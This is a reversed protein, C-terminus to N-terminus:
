KGDSESSSDHRHHHRKKHHHKHHSRSSEGSAAPAAAPAPVPSPPPSTVLTIWGNEAFYQLLSIVKTLELGTLKRVKSRHIGGCLDSERIVVEKTSLYQSPSLHLLACLNRESDSLLCSGPMSSITFIKSKLDGKLKKSPRGPLGSSQRSIVMPRDDYEGVKRDLERRQKDMSYVEAAAYSRIGAARLAQLNDIRRRLDHEIATAHLLEEYEKRPAVQMLARMQTLLDRTKPALPEKSSGRDVFFKRDALHLRRYELLGNSIIFERRRARERTIWHYALMARHKVERDAESDEASFGIDKLVIEVENEWEIEFETRLPNYSASQEEQSFVPKPINAVSFPAQQTAEAPQPPAAPPAPRDSSDMPIVKRPDPLPCTESDLYVANYHRRIEDADKGPSALQEAIEEWNGLGCMDIADLLMLEDEACWDPEFLPFDLRDMVKYPHTNKHPFIEVGVSFCWVCLDFDVCEACKVRPEHTIDKSCYDCHFQLREAKETVTKQKQKKTSNKEFNSHREGGKRVKLDRKSETM